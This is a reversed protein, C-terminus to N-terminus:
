GWGVAARRWARAGGCAGLTAVVAIAGLVALATWSAGAYWASSDLLVPWSQLVVLFFFTSVLALLGFRLMVTLIIGWVLLVEIMAGARLPLPASELQWHGDLLILFAMAVAIALGRRRLLFQAATLVFLVFLPGGLFEASVIQALAKRGGGLVADAVGYPIPPAQGLWYPVIWELRQVVVVLVGGLAGILVDRSVRPDGVRGMVLRTWSILTRPWHRRVYPELALYILGSVVGLLLVLGLQALFLDTQRTIAGGTLDTRLLWHVLQLLGVAIGLRWAGKRDGVGRRLNRRAVLPPVVLMAALLLVNAWQSARRVLPPSEQKGLRVPTDFTELVQFYIPRGRYGGAEIRVPWDPQGRYHGTWAARSDAPLTPNWEPSAATFDALDLGAAAFLPAYDPVADTRPSADREPPAIELIQLRGQDDTIVGAMGPATLPPERFSIESSVGRPVMPVPSERYQFAYPSPMRGMMRAWRDRAPDTKAVHGLYSPYTSYRYWVDAPAATAGLSSLLERAHDALVIPPKAPPAAGLLLVRANLAAILLLGAVIAGFIGLALPRPMPTEGGAAAVMEPSPTEGAALATAVPDGGPLVAAVALASPPRESPDAHLCRLILEDVTPDLQPVLQAPSPPPGALQLRRLEAVNAAPYAARGTFLEYLVAGLAYIDTRTSSPAGDFLEPAMYTPTGAIGQGEREHAFAALGFDTIRARGRGDIMVNASKLDRHLVGIEHAAALGACLQRAIELAKERSPRGLRRLVSRLDEGDVYEMSIFTHGDAEGIDFVRCVNPHTVQRAVRVENRVRDRAVTSDALHAPLFKLAVPQGVHLDDARYVEGTAGQGLLEVIRYRGAFLTGPLFRRASSEPLPIAAGGGFSVTPSDDAVGLGARRPEDM